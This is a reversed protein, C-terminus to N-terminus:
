GRALAVKTAAVRQAREVQARAEASTMGMEVAKAKADAYEREAQARNLNAADEAYDTVLTLENGRMQAFGSDVLFTKATGDSLEVRAVGVGLSALFPSAGAMVGRQGDWAEFSVYNADASLLSLSPTVISCRFTAPM